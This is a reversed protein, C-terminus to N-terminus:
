VSARYLTFPDIAMIRVTQTCSLKCTHMLSVAVTRILQAPPFKQDCALQPTDVQRGPDAVPESIQRIVAKHSKM